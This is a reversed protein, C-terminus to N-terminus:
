PNRFTSAINLFAPMEAFLPKFITLLIVRVKQSVRKIVICDDADFNALHDKSERKRAV